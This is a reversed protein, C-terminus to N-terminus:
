DPPRSLRRAEMAFFVYEDNGPELERAREFAIAAEAYDRRAFHIQGLYGWAPAFEPFEETVGALEQEAASFDAQRYLDLGRLFAESVDAGFALRQEALNLFYRAGEDGPDLRLVRNWYEAALDFRGLEQAVRAAWSAADGYSPALQWAEEFSALAASLDDAEYLDAGRDFAAVAELGWAEQREALSLFWHSRSDEPDLETAWRWYGAALSPQGMELATRGSWVAADTFNRNAEFAAQFRTLAEETQGLEYFSIGQSFALAADPGFRDVNSALQSQSVPVGDQDDLELLRSFSLEAGAGDGLELSIRGSWFLAEANDPQHELLTGYYHLAGSLDGASYRSFGLQTAAEAFAAPEPAEGSLQNWHLWADFARSYWFVESYLSAALHAVAESEPENSLAQEGARIAARWAPQDPHPQQGSERAAAVSEELQTLGAQAFATGVLLMALFTAKLLNMVAAM